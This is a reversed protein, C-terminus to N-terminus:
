GDSCRAWILLYVNLFHAYLSHNTFYTLARLCRGRIHLLMVYQGNPSVFAYIDHEKPVIDYVNVASRLKM